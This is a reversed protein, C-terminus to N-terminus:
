SQRSDNPGCRCRYRCGMRRQWARQLPLVAFTTFMIDLPEQFEPKYNAVLYAALSLM